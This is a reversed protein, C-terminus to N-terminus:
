WDQSIQHNEGTKPKKPIDNDDGQHYGPTAVMCKIYCPTCGGNVLPNDTTIIGEKQGNKDIYIVVYQTMKRGSRSPVNTVKTVSTINCDTLDAKVLSGYSAKKAFSSLKARQDASLRSYDVTQVKITEETVTANSVVQKAPVTSVTAPPDPVPIPRNVKSPTPSTYVDAELADDLNIEQPLFYKMVNYYPCYREYVMYNILQITEKSILKKEILQFKSEPERIEYVYQEFFSIEDGLSLYYDEGFM